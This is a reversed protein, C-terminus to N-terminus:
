RNFDRGSLGTRYNGMAVGDPNLMPVIKFVVKTRLEKAAKHNSCLFSLFGEMVYSSNSEGPHVRGSMVICKKRPKFIKKNKKEEELYKYM